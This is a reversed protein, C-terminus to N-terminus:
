REASRVNVAQVMTNATLPVTLDQGLRVTRPTQQRGRVIETVACQEIQCSVELRTAGERLRFAFPAQAVSPGWRVGVGGPQLAFPCDLCDSASSVRRYVHVNGLYARSIDAVRFDFGFGVSKSISQITM